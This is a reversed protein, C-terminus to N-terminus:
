ENSFYRVLVILVSLIGGLITGLAVILARKPKAKEKGYIQISLQDGVGLYITNLYQLTWLLHLPAQRM